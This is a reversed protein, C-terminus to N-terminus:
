TCGLWSPMAKVQLKAQVYELWPLRFIVMKCSIASPIQLMWCFTSMFGWHLIVLGLTHTSSSSTVSLFLSWHHVLVLTQNQHHHLRSTVLTKVKVKQSIKKGHRRILEVCGGAIDPAWWMIMNQRSQGLKLFTSQFRLPTLCLSAISITLVSLQCLGLM